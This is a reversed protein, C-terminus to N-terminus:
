VPPRRKLRLETYELMRNGASSIGDSFLFDARFNKVQAGFDGTLPRASYDLVDNFM